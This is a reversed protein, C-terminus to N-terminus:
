QYSKLAENRRDREGASRHVGGADDYWAMPSSPKDLKLAPIMKGFLALIVFPIIIKFIQWILIAVMLLTGVAWMIVFLTYAISLLWGASQKMQVFMSLLSFGLIGVGAVAAIYFVVTGATHSVWGYLCLGIIVLVASVAIAMVIASMLEKRPVAKNTCLFSEMGTAYADITKYQWRVALFFLFINVFRMFDGVYASNLWWCCDGKLEDVIGIELVITMFALVPALVLLLGILWYRPKLTGNDFKKLGIVMARRSIRWTLWIMIFVAFLFAGEYFERNRMDTYKSLPNATGAANESSFKLEVPDVYFTRGLTDTVSALPRKDPAFISFMSFFSKDHYIVEQKDKLVLKTGRLMVVSDENLSFESPTYLFKTGVSKPKAYQYVVITTDSKANGIPCAEYIQAYNTAVGIVLLFLSIVTRLNKM